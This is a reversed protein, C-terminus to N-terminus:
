SDKNGRSLKFGLFLALLVSVAIIIVNFWTKTQFWSQATSAASAAEPAAIQAGLKAFVPGEQEIQQRFSSIDYSPRGAGGNGYLLQYTRGTQYEFVLKDIFYDVKLGTLNIPPSDQDNIRITFKSQVIPAVGSIATNQLQVDKFDLRYLERKGEVAIDKGDAGQVTYSRTFSGGAELLVKTIRLQNNNSITLLTQGNDQKVEYPLVVTKAFEQWSTELTSHVLQLQPFVLNEVNDLIKIRYYAFKYMSDLMVTSKELQETRYVHDKKLLEWQNGDYSGYIELHKLFAQAAPLSLSLRNGLIDKTTDLPDIRFDLLTDNNKKVSDILASKYIVQKNSAKSAGSDVYFPVFQGKDDIIRVDGLDERAAKYVDEDLFLRHYKGSGQLEISKSFRWENRNATEAVSVTSGVAAVFLSALVAIVSIKQMWRRKMAIM